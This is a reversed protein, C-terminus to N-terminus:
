TFTLGSGSNYLKDVDAQVLARTWFAIQSLDVDLYKTLSGSWAGVRFPAAGDQLSTPMGATVTWAQTVGDVWLKARDGNAAETGDFVCVVHFPGVGSLAGDVASGNTDALIAGASNAVEAIYFRLDGGVRTEVGWETATGHQWKTAVAQDANISGEIWFSVSLQTTWSFEPGDAREGYQSSAAVFNARNTLGTVYSPTTFALAGNNTLDLGQRAADVLDGDLEWATILAVRLAADWNSVEGKYRGYPQDYRFRYLSM